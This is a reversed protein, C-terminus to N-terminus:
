GSLRNNVIGGDGVSEPLSQRSCELGGMENYDKVMSPLLFLDVFWWLFAIVVYTFGFILFPIYLLYTFFQQLGILFLGWEDVDYNDASDLAGISIVLVGVGAFSMISVYTASMSRRLYYRHIGWIFLLLGVVAWAYAIGLSKSAGLSAKVAYRKVMKPLLFLDIFWWFLSIGIFIWIVWLHTDQELIDPILFLVGLLGAGFSSIVLSVLPITPDDSFIFGWVVVSFVPSM